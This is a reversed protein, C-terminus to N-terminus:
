ICQADVVFYSGDLEVIYKLQIKVMQYMYM